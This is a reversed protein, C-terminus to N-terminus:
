KGGQIAAETYRGWVAEKFRENTWDQKRGDAVCIMLVGIYAESYWRRGLEDVHTPSPVLGKREWDIFTSETVKIRELLDGLSRCLVERGGVQFVRPQLHRDLKVSEAETQTWRGPSPKQNRRRYDRAQKVM